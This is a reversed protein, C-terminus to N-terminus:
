SIVELEIRYKGGLQEEHEIIIPKDWAEAAVSAVITALPGGLCHHSWDASQELRPNKIEITIHNNHLVVSTGNAVGLRGTFLSTLASELEYPNAGPKSELM